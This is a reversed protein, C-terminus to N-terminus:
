GLEDRLKKMAYRIRSKVTEFNVLTMAAIEDLSMGADIHLLLAERQLVPLRDIAAILEESSQKRILWADPEDHRAMTPEMAARAQEDASDDDLSVGRHRNRALKYYDRVHNVVIRYLWTSFKATPEYSRRAQTVKIWVEQALDCSESHDRVMRLIHRFVRRDHRAYLSDFAALNGDRYALMLGEDPFEPPFFM